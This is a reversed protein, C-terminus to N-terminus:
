KLSKQKWKEYGEKLSWQGLVAAYGLNFSEGVKKKKILDFLGRYKMSSHNDTFVNTYITKIPKNAFREILLKVEKSLICYLVLKSLHKESSSIAFDSLLYITPKELNVPTKFTHECSVGFTGFLKSNSFLGFCIQPKASGKIKKSLYMNKLQIYQKQSLEKIQPSEILEDTDLKKLSYQLSNTKLQYLKKPVEINSYLYKKDYLKVKLLHAFQSLERDSIIIFKINKNLIAKFLNETFLQNNKNINCNLIKDLLLNTKLNDANVLLLDNSKVQKIFEFIEKNSFSELKIDNKIISKKIKNHLMEFQLDYGKILRENYMNENILLPTIRNLLLLSAIKDTETQLFKNVFNIKDLFEDKISFPLLKEKMIYKGLQTNLFDVDGGIIPLSTLKQLTSEILYDNSGYTYLTDIKHKTLYEQLTQIIIKQMRRM